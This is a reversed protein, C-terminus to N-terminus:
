ALKPLQGLLGRFYAAATLAAYEQWADGKSTDCYDCVGRIVLYGAGQNWTADAIGSGEMEVAKARHKERLRDRVRADKLLANSSAIPGYFVRPAGARRAPDVPHELVTAPDESDVLVDTQEPPRASNRLDAGRAMEQGWPHQGQAELTRVRTVAELLQAAPPAPRYREIIEDQEVKVFDFQVVGYRDSVVIDGLRVHHEARGHDPVGGAIGVMIIHQINPFHNLLATARTAAMNNGMDGLSLHVVAHSGGVLAPVTGVDYTMVRQRDSRAVVAPGDLMALVAAAEKPLATIVGIRAQAALVEARQYEGPEVLMFHRLEKPEGDLIEGCGCRVETGKERALCVEEENLDEGCSPCCQIVVERLFGGKVLERFVFLVQASSIGAVASVVDPNLIPAHGARQVADRVRAFLDRYRPHKAATTDFATWFM